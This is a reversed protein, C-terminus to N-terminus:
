TIKRKDKRITGMWKDAIEAPDGDPQPLSIRTHGEEPCQSCIGGPHPQTRGSPASTMPPQHQSLRRPPLSVSALLPAAHCHMPTSSPKPRHNSGIRGSSWAAGRGDGLARLSPWTGERCSPIHLSAREGGHAALRTPSGSEIGVTEGAPRTTPPMQDVWGENGPGQRGQRRVLQGKRM